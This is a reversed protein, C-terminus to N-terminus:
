QKPELLNAIYGTNSLIGASAHKIDDIDSQGLNSEDLKDKIDEQNAIVEQLLEIINDYNAKSLEM